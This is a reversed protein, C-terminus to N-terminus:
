SNGIMYGSEQLNKWRLEMKVKRRPKMRMVEVHKNKLLRKLSSKGKWLEQVHWWMNRRDASM